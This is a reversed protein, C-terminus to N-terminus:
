FKIGVIKSVVMNPTGNNTLTDDDTVTFWAYMSDDYLGINRNAVLDSTLYTQSAFFTPYNKRYGFIYIMDFNSIGSTLEITSPATTGENEYIVTATYSSGGAEIDDFAASLIEIINPLTQISTRLKTALEKFTMTNGGKFMYAMKAISAYKILNM